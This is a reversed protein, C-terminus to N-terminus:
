KSNGGLEEQLIETLFERDLGVRAGEQFMNSILQHAKKRKELSRTPTPMERVFTGAGRRMRVLGDAELDRYAQVVTAPNIRLKGALDRVSPLPDNSGFEGAAIALRIREAIQAYM